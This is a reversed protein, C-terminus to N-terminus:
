EHVMYQDARSEVVECLETVALAIAKQIAAGMPTDEYESLGGGLGGRGGIGIGGFSFSTSTAEGEVVKSAITRSSRMDIIRISIVCRGKKKGVKAGGLGIRGAVRGLVGVGATKGSVDPDFETVSAYIALDAGEATGKDPGTEEQIWGSEKLGVEDQIQDFQMREMVWFRDCGVLANTLLDELGGVIGSTRTM